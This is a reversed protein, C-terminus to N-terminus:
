CNGVTIDFQKKMELFFKLKKADAYIDDLSALTCEQCMGFKDLTPFEKITCISSKNFICFNCACKLVSKM